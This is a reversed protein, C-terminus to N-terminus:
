PIDRLTPLFPTGAKPFFGRGFEQGRGPCWMGERGGDGEDLWQPCQAQQSEPGLGLLWIKVAGMGEMDVM